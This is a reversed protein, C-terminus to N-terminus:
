GTSYTVGFKQAVSIAYDPDDSDVTWNTGIAMHVAASTGVLLERKRLYDASAATHDTYTAIVINPGCDVLTLANTPHDIRRAPGCPLGAAGLDRVLDMADAYAKPAPPPPVETTAAPNPSAVAFAPRIMAVTSGRPMLVGAVVSVAGVAILVLVLVSWTRRRPAYTIPSAM